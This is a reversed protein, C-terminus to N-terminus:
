KNLYKSLEENWRSIETNPLTAAITRSRPRHSVFYVAWIAVAFNYAASNLLVLTKDSIKHLHARLELLVLDSAAYVGFGIAIGVAYHQWTLGLRSMLLILVVLGCAQLFRVSREALVIIEFLPDTQGSPNSSLFMILGVVLALATVVWFAGLAIRGLFSYPRVLHWIVEYVVGLSLAVVTAESLWYIGSYLNPYNRVVLLLIERAPLLVSYSFFVPFIKVLKRHVMVMALFSQVVIPTIWLAMTIIQFAKM